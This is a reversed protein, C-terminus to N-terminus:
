TRRVMLSLTIRQVTTASDVNFGLWNGEALTTIWDSVITEQTLSSSLTPKHTGTITDVVTPPFNAFTDKWVDVVVSGIQDATIECGVITGAPVRVFGKIGTTIAAGGGDIIFNVYFYQTPLDSVVLARFTPVTDAGSAPGALVKNVSQADLSLEQSALGLLVGASTALTVPNHDSTTINQIHAGNITQGVIGAKHLYDEVIQRIHSDIERWLGLFSSTQM